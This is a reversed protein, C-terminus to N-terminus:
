VQYKESYERFLAVMKRSLPGVETSIQKSDIQVVPVVERISSTIFAEDLLPIEDKHINREVVNIGGKQALECVIQRTIGPLIRDCPPTVITGKIIVFFNSTTGEQMYGNRDVYIAEIAGQSTAEKQCLIAPIYNITKSGPMFRDVACTVVKTGEKLWNDPTATAASVMLLLSPQNGPTIGDPSIGGTIVIRVKKETYSSLGLAELCLNTIEEISLPLPLGILKASRELRDLHDRLHFPHGNYTRLFDFVGYGRIVALDNVSVKADEQKVFEGNVYYIDM